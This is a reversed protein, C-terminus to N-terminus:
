NFRASYYKFLKFYVGFKHYRTRPFFGVLERMWKRDFFLVEEESRQKLSRVTKFDDPGLGLQVHRKYCLTCSYFM